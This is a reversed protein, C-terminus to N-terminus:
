LKCQVKARGGGYRLTDLSWQPDELAASLLKVGLEGPQNYRLDLERLHSSKSSLASGLSVCGEETIM